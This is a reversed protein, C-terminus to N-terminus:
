AIELLRIFFILYNSVRRSNAQVRMYSTTRYFSVRKRGSDPSSSKPHSRESKRRRPPSPISSIPLAPSSPRRPDSTRRRTSWFRRGSRSVFTSRKFSLTRIAPTALSFASFSFFSFIWKVPSSQIFHIRLSVILDSRQRSLRFYKVERKELMSLWLIISTGFYFSINAIFCIYDKVEYNLICEKVLGFLRWTTSLDAPAPNFQWADVQKTSM